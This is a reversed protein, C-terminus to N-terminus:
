SLFTEGQLNSFLSIFNKATRSLYRDRRYILYLHRYQAPSELPFTLVTEQQVLSEVSNRSLISVGLGQAICLRLTEADSIHAAVQLDEMALGLGSLCSETERLTGSSGDRLLIPKKLLEAPTANKRLMEQYVPTNPTVIVLEDLAIPVFVCIQSETKTGVFGADWSGDSVKQIVDISDARFVHIQTEPSRRHFQTLANPLICQCPVSSAGIDLTKKSDASLEELAKRHMALIDSAYHYLRQGAETIEFLRTTRHILQIKLERELAAIHTSVTPQALHLVDAAAAFGKHDVVNVFVELQKLDM